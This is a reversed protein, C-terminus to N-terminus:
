RPPALAETVIDDPRRRFSLLQWDQLLQVFALPSLGLILDPTFEIAAQIGGRANVTRTMSAALERANAATISFSSLPRAVNTIFQNADDPHLQSWVSNGILQLLLAGPGVPTTDWNGPDLIARAYLIPRAIIGTVLRGAAQLVITGNAVARSAAQTFDMLSNYLATGGCYGACGTIWAIELVILVKRVIQLGGELIGIAIGRTLLWAIVRERMALAAVNTIVFPGVKSEVLFVLLIKLKNVGSFGTFANNWAEYERAGRAAGYRERYEDSTAQLMYGLVVRWLGPPMGIYTLAVCLLFSPDEILAQDVVSEGVAM